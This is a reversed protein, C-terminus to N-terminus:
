FKYFKKGNKVYIEGSPLADIDTGMLKGDLTYIPSDGQEVENEVATDIGTTSNEDDLVIAFGKAPAAGTTRMYARFSHIYGNPNDTRIPWWQSHILNYAKMGAATANDIYETTGGFYFGQGNVDQVETSAISPTVPVQVSVDIGFQKSPSGDTIRILYPKNAQLQTGGDGISVFRFHTIGGHVTKAQLTYARMGNPLTAPYPLYLTKYQYPNSFDRKYTAKVATFPYKISYDCAMIIGTKYRPHDDYVVFNDCANGIVFNEQGADAPTSGAPLYVMTFPYTASFPSNTGDRTVPQAIAPIESADVYKLCMRWSAMPDFLRNGLTIATNHEFKVAELNHCAGFAREGISTVSSPITLLGTLKICGWFAYEEIKTVGSPIILQGTFNDCLSFARNRIITIGSPLTLPGTLNRCGSFAGDGITTVSNPITLTGDFAGCSLFAEDAIATVGNPIILNGTLKTCNNFTGKNIKTLSNSLTLSGTFENCYAFAEDGIATVSNPIVLDGTLKNNRFASQGITTVSNPITLTGTLGTCANFAWDGIKTVGYPIILSGTLGSCSEFTHDGITTVGSPITLPGTLNYCYAFAGDGITTVSSPITLPGTLNYCNAFASRGITTVSNPITLSGTLSNYYIFAYEGIATVSYSNGDSDIVPSPINLSGTLSSGETTGTITANPGNTTYIWTAGNATYTKTQAQAASFPLTCLAMLLLFIQRTM